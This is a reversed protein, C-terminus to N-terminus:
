QCVLNSILFFRFLYCDPKLIIVPYPILFEVIPFVIVMAIDDNINRVKEVVWNRAYSAVKTNWLGILCQHSLRMALMFQQQFNLESLPIWMLQVVTPVGCALMKLYLGDFGGFDEFLMEFGQSSHTIILSIILLLM